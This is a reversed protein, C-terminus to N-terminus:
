IGIPTQRATAQPPTLISGSTMIKTDHKNDSVPNMFPSTYPIVLCINYLPLWEGEFLPVGVRVPSNERVDISASRDWWDPESSM